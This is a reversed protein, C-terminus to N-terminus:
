KNGPIEEETASSTPSLAKDKKDKPKTRLTTESTNYSPWPLDHQSIPHSSIKRNQPL